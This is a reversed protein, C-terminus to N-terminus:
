IYCPQQDSWPSPPMDRREQPFFIDSSFNDKFRTAPYSFDKTAQWMVSLTEKMWFHLFREQNILHCQILANIPKNVIVFCSKWHLEGLLVDGNETDRKRQPGSIRSALRPSLRSDGFTIRKFVDLNAKSKIWQLLLIGSMTIQTILMERRLSICCSSMTGSWLPVSRLSFSLSPPRRLVPAAEPLPLTGEAM